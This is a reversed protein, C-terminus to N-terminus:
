LQINTNIGALKLMHQLEHVYNMRILPDDEIILYNEEAETIWVLNWTNERLPVTYYYMGENGFEAQYSKNSPFNRDMFEKTLPISHVEFPRLYYMRHDNPEAHYGIKNKTIQEVQFPFANFKGRYFLWDKRMLNDTTM